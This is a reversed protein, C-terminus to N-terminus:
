IGIQRGALRQALMMLFPNLKKCRGLVEAIPRFRAVHWAINEDYAREDSWSPCWTATRRCGLAEGVEALRPLENLDDQWTNQNWRVPLGWQGPLIRKSEFLARVEDVGREDALAAAQRIDFDIGRFGTKGALEITEPLSLGKIGIMGASLNKYM